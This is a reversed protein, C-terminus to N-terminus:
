HALPRAQSETSPGAADKLQDYRAIAGALQGIYRDLDADSMEEIPDVKVELQQPLISAIVKLYVAPQKERVTAIVKAGHQEFDAHLKSLFEEGLKNRSGKQRGKPNGSQGPKWWHAPTQEDQAPASKSEAAV